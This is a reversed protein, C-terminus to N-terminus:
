YYKKKRYLYLGDNIGNKYSGGKQKLYTTIVFEKIKEIFSYKCTTMKPHIKIDFYTYFFEAPGIKLFNNISNENLLTRIIKRNYLQEVSDIKPNYKINIKNFLEEFCRLVFKMENYNIGQYGLLILHDKIDNNKMLLYNILNHYKNNTNCITRNCIKYVDDEFYKYLLSERQNILILKDETAIVYFNLASMIESVNIENFHTSM